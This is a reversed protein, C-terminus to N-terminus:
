DDRVEKRLEDGCWPCCRIPISAIHTEDDYEYYDEIFLEYHECAADGAQINASRTGDIYDAGQWWAMKGLKRMEMTCHECSM